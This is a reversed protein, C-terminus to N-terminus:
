TSEYRFAYIWYGTSPIMPTDFTDVFFDWFNSYKTFLCFFSCPYKGWFGKCQWSNWSFFIILGGGSEATFPFIISWRRYRFTPDYISTRLSTALRNWM